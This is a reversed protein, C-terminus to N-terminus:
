FKTQGSSGHVRSDMEDVQGRPQVSPWLSRLSPLTPRVPELQINSSLPTLPLRLPQPQEIHHYRPPNVYNTNPSVYPHVISSNTQVRTNLQHQLTPVNMNSRMMSNTLTPNQAYANRYHLTSSPNSRRNTSINSSFSDYPQNPGVQTTHSVGSTTNAVPFMQGGSMTRPFSPWTNAPAFLHGNSTSRPAISTNGGIARQRSSLTMIDTSCGTSDPAKRKTAKRPVVWPERQHTNVFTQYPESSFWDDVQSVIMEFQGSITESGLIEALHHSAALLRCNKVVLWIKDKSLLDTSAYFHHGKPFAKNFLKDFNTRISEYLTKMIAVSRIPDDEPCASIIHKPVTSTKTPPFGNPNLEELSPFEREASTVIEDFNENTLSPQLAMLRSAAEPECNSCLCRPMGAEQQRKVEQLYGSDTVSM